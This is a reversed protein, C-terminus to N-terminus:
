HKSETVRAELWEVAKKSAVGFDMSTFEFEMRGVAGAFPPYPTLPGLITMLGTKTNYLLIFEQGKVNVKLETPNQMSM